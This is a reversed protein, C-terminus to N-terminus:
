LEDGQLAHSVYYVLKQVKDKERVLMASFAEERVALYIFLTKGQELSILTPLEAIHAKLEDFTKQCKYTWEFQPGRRLVKFFPSGRVVSKSLFRNLATMRGVLRQVEKINKPPAMDM